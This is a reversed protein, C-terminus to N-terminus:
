REHQLEEFRGIFGSEMKAVATRVSKEQADRTLFERKVADRLSALDSGGIARRVSILVEAGAKVLVGEDVALYVAQGEKTRYTLIGPVIQAVCDLRQPLLEFSGATTEAVISLVDAKDAFIESPLLIKLQM